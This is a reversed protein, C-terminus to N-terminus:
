QFDVRIPRGLEQSLQFLRESVFAEDHHPGLLVCLEQGEMHIGVEMGRHGSIAQRILEPVQCTRRIIQRLPELAFHEPQLRFYVKSEVNKRRLLGASTLASLERQACRLHVNSERAIDRLSHARCEAERFFFHLIRVRSLHGLLLVAELEFPSAQSIKTM